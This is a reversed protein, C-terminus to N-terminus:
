FSSIVPPPPLTAYAKLGLVLSVTAPLNRTLKLSTQDVSRIGPYGPSCWFVRDQFVFLVLNTEFGPCIATTAMLLAFCVSADQEGQM